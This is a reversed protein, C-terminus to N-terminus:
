EDMQKSYLFYGHNSCVTTSGLLGVDDEKIDNQTSDNNEKDITLGNKSDMSKSDWSETPDMSEERTQIPPEVRNQGNTEVTKTSISDVQEKDHKTPDGHLNVKWPVLLVRGQLGLSTRCLFSGGSTAM